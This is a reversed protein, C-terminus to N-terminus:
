RAMLRSIRKICFIIWHKFTNTQQYYQYKLYIIKSAFKTIIIESLVDILM